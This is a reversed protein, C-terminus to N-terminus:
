NGVSIIGFKAASKQFKVEHTKVDRIVVSLLFNNSANQVKLSFHKRLPIVLGERTDETQQALIERVLNNVNFAQWMHYEKGNTLELETNVDHEGVFCLATQSGSMGGCSLVAEFPYEKARQVRQRAAEVEAEARQRDARARERAADEAALRASKEEEAKRDQVVQAVTQNKSTATAKDQLYQLMSDVAVRSGYISQNSEFEAKLQKFGASDSIGHKRLQQLELGDVGISKGFKYDAENAFRLSNM